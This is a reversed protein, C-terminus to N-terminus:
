HRKDRLDFLEEEDGRTHCVHHDPSCKAHREYPESMPLDRIWHIGDSDVEERDKGSHDSLVEEPGVLACGTELVLISLTVGTSLRFGQQGVM